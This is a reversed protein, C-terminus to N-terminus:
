AGARRADEFSQPGSIGKPAGYSNKSSYNFKTMVETEQFSLSLRIAFPMGTKGWSPTTEAGVEYAVWGKPAFDMDISTLVCTSIPPINPNIQGNYHFEIDFESPPVLFYGVSGPLIEPAQHFKLRQIINNVEEAEGPSSPYFMFDFRFNRLAPSTYVLELQPNQVVGFATAFIASAGNQGILPSVLNKIKEAIFPTLNKGLQEANIKGNVADNIMSLGAGYFAAPEGGMQLQNYNQTNTYAMTGPMYLAISEVTRKTTRLFNVDNLRGVAEEASKRAGTVGENIKNFVEGGTAGFIQIEPSNIKDLLVDSVAQLGKNYTEQVSAPTNTRIFDLGASGIKQLNNKALDAVGGLNVTGVSQKLAQRNRQITSLPDDAFKVPFSTKEQANIHIIMYHAKDTNGLDIPYRLTNATLTNSSIFNAGRYPQSAQFKIDTLNFLAM